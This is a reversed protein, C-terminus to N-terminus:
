FWPFIDTWGLLDTIVLIALIVLVVVGADGAGAPLQDLKGAISSVEEDTMSNVRARVDNADIGRAQLYQQVNDRSLFTNVKDKDQQLQNASLADATGVLGAHASQLPLSLSILSVILLQSIFRCFRNKM